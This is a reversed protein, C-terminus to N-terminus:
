CTLECQFIEVLSQPIGTFHPVSPAVPPHTWLELKDLM